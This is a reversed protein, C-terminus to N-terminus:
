EKFEDAIRDQANVLDIIPIIRKFAEEAIRFTPTIENPKDIERLLCDRTACSELREYWNVWANSHDTFAKIAPKFETGMLNVNISKLRYNEIILESRAESLIGKVREVVKYEAINSYERKLKENANEMISESSEISVLIKGLYFNSLGINIVGLSVLIGIFILALQLKSLSSLFAKLKM